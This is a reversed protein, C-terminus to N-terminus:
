SVTMREGEEACSSSRSYEMEPTTNSKKKEECRRAFNDHIYHSIFRKLLFIPHPVYNELFHLLPSPFLHCVGIFTFRM